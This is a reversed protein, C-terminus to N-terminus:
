QIPSYVIRPHIIGFFYRIREVLLSLPSLSLLFFCDMLKLGAIKFVRINENKFELLGILYALYEIIASALLGVRKTIQATLTIPFSVFRGASKLRGRRSTFYHLQAKMSCTEFDSRFVKLSEYTAPFFEKM